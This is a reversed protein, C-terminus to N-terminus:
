SAIHVSFLVTALLKVSSCHLVQGKLFFIESGFLAGVYRTILNVMSEV